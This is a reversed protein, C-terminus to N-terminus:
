KVLDQQEASKVFTLEHGNDVTDTCLQSTQFNDQHKNSHSM